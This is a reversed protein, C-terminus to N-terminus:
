RLTCPGDPKPDTHPPCNASVAWTHHITESSTVFGANRVQDYHLGFNNDLYKVHQNEDLSLFEPTTDELGYSVGWYDRGDKTFEMFEKALYLYPRNTRMMTFANDALIQDCRIFRNPLAQISTESPVFTLTIEGSLYQDYINITSQM